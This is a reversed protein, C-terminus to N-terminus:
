NPALDQGAGLAADSAITALEHCSDAATRSPLTLVAGPIDVLMGNLCHITPTTLEIGPLGRFHV